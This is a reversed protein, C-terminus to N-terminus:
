DPSIEGISHFMEFTSGAHFYGARAFVAIRELRQADDRLTHEPQAGNHGARAHLRQRVAEFPRFVAQRYFLALNM